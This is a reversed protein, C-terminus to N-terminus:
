LATSLLSSDFRRFDSSPFLNRFDVLFDPNNKIANASSQELYLTGLLQSDQSIMIAVPKQASRLGKLTHTLGDGKQNDPFFLQDKKLDFDLVTFSGGTYVYIEDRGNGTIIDTHGEFIHVSDKGKGLDLRQNSFTIAIDDGALLHVSNMTSKKDFFAVDNRDGTKVFSDRFGSVIYERRRSGSFIDSRMTGSVHLPNRNSSQDDYIIGIESEQDRQQKLKLREPSLPSIGVAKSFSGYSQTSTLRSITSPTLSPSTPQTKATALDVEAVIWSNLPLEQIQDYTWNRLEVTLDLGSNDKITILEGTAGDQSIRLDAIKKTYGELVILDASANFNEIRNAGGSKIWFQDRGSGGNFTNDGAGGILVDDGAGGILVDNGEGGRLHLRSMSLRFDFYDDFASGHINIVQLSALDALRTSGKLIVSQDWPAGTKPDPNPLIQIADPANAFDAYFSNTGGRGDINSYQSYADEISSNTDVDFALSIVDNFDSGTFTSGSGTRVMYYSSGIEQPNPLSQYNFQSGGYAEISEVNFLEAIKLESQQLSIDMQAFIAGDVKAKGSVKIAKKIPLYGVTDAGPGGNVVDIQEGGPSLGPFIIDNGAGTNIIEVGRSGYIQDNGSLTTIKFPTSAPHQGSRDVIVDTSAPGGTFQPSIMLHPEALRTSLLWSGDIRQKMMSALYDAASSTDSNQNLETNSQESLEITVIDTPSSTNEGTSITVTRRNVGKKSSTGVKFQPSLDEGFNSIIVADEGITFDEIRITTREERIDVTGVQEQTSSDLFEQLEEQKKLNEQLDLDLQKSAQYHSYISTALNVALVGGAASKLNFGSVGKVINDGIQRYKNQVSGDGVIGKGADLWIQKIQAQYGARIEQERDPVLKRWIQNLANNPNSLDATVGVVGSGASEFNILNTETLGPRNTLTVDRIRAVNPRRISSTAEHLPLPNRNPNPSGVIRGLIDLDNFDNDLALTRGNLTISSGSLRGAGRYAYLTSIEKAGQGANATNGIFDVNHLALESPSEPLLNSKGWPLNPLLGVLSAIAGGLAAGDGGRGGDGGKTSGASNGGTGSTAYEGGAGGQGPNPSGGRGEANAGAGGGAGGGAGFGGAGGNGGNGGAGKKDRVFIPNRQYQGGGGSGGGGGAIGLFVSPQGNKGSTGDLSGVLSEGLGRDGGRGKGDPRNALVTQLEGALLSPYGGQGGDIGDRGPTVFQKGWFNDRGGDGGKGGQAGRGGRAGLDQFVSNSIRLLGSLHTIGGGAGMGGGGGLIGDQGIATNRVFNVSNIDVTPYTQNHQVIPFSLPYTGVTLISGSIGPTSEFQRKGNAPLLIVSKPSRYNIRIDSKNLIPLPSNLEITWYGTGLNNKAKENPNQTAFIIEYFGERRQTEQLAWRLTGISGDDRNNDVVILRRDTM